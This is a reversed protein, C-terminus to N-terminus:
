STDQRQRKLTAVHRRVRRKNALRSARLLFANRTTNAQSIARAAVTVARRAMTVKPLTAVVSSTRVQAAARPQAPRRRRPRPRHRRPHLRYPRPSLRHPRQHRHRRAQALADSCAARLARRSRRRRARRAFRSARRSRAEQVTAQCPRPRQRHPRRHRHRRAQPLAASCVARPARRSRRQRARRAFRSVHRSRVAQATRQPWPLLLLRWAPPWTSTAPSRCALLPCATPTRGSSGGVRRWTPASRAPGRRVWTGHPTSRRQRRRRDWPSM